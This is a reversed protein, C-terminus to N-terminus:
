GHLRFIRTNTDLGLAQFCLITLARLGQTKSISLDPALTRLREQVAPNAGLADDPMAYYAVIPSRIEARQAHIAEFVEEPIAKSPTLDVVFLSPNYHHVM